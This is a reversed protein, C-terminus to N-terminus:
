DGEGFLVQELAARMGPAIEYVMTASAGDRGRSLTVLDLQAAMNLLAATDRANIKDPLQPDFQGFTLRAHYMLHQLVRIGDTGLEALAVKAKKYYHEEVPTRVPTLMRILDERHASSVATGKRWPVELEVPGVNAQGRVPNKVVYPRRSAEFLLAQLTGTGTATLGTATPIVLDRILRPALQDFQSEIQAVWDATNTPTIPVVGKAEDLGIVWLVTEGGSANAHAAIRRAAKIPDPWDAKLEVRSDEIRDGRAVTDVLRLVWTEIQEPRM